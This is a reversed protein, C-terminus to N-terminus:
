TPSWGRDEWPQRRLYRIRERDMREIAEQYFRCRERISFGGVEGLFSWGKAQARQSRPDSFMVTLAAARVEPTCARMTLILAVKARLPAEAPLWPNKQDRAFTSNNEETPCAVAWLTLAEWGRLGGVRSGFHALSLHEGEVGLAQLVPANAESPILMDLGAILRSDLSRRAIDWLVQDLAQGAYGNLREILDLVEAESYGTDMYRNYDYM